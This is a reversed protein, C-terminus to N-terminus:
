IVIIKRAAVQPPYSLMVQGSYYIEVTDGVKIGDRGIKIGNKTYETGDGTIIFFPGSFYESEIVEVEIKDGIATVRATMKVSEASESCGTALLCPLVLALLM